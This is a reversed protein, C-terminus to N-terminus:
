VGGGWVWEWRVKHTLGRLGVLNDHIGAALFMEVESSSVGEKVAVPADLYRAELVTGESGQGM